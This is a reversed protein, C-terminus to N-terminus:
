WLRFDALLPYHDSPWRDDFKRRIVVPEVVAGDMGHFALHDIAAFLNLGRGFHYTAGQVQTFSLGVSELVQHTDSGLRANLDGALIVTEGVRIWPEVREAVLAASRLRNDRSRFDFHVNVIRFSVDSQRDLFRVWSAFAPYSGNFTRSYPVDPTESFFFWGQEAVALQDSRFFIPQTSPFTRWDGIAAASYGPNRSLLWERAHNFSDDEEGAFSEMEQFAIVDADLSKFAADLSNKRRNWDGLSWTGTAEKVLIYHVNHTAIRLAGEPKEALTTVASNRLNQCGILLGVSLLALGLIRIFWRVIRM